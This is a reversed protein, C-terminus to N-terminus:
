LLGRDAMEKRVRECVRQLEDRYDERCMEVARNLYRAATAMDCGLRTATIRVYLERVADDDDKSLEQAYQQVLARFGRTSRRIQSAAQELTMSTREALPGAFADILKDDCVPGDACKKLLEGIRVGGELRVLCDIAAEFINEGASMSLGFEDALKNIKRVSYIPEPDRRFCLHADYDAGWANNHTIFGTKLKGNELLDFEYHSLRKLCGQAAANGYVACSFDPLLAGYLLVPEQDGTIKEALHVHTIPGWAFVPEVFLLSMITCVAIKSRM